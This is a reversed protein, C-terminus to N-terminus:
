RCSPPEVEGETGWRDLWGAVMAHDVLDAQGKDLEDVATQIAAV